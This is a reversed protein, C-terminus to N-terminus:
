APAFAQSATQPGFLGVSAEHKMRKRTGVSICFGCVRKKLYESKGTSFRQTAAGYSNAKKGHDDLLIRSM